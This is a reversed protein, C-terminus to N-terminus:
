KIPNKQGFNKFGQKYNLFIYYYFKLKFFKKYINYNKSFKSKKMGLILM